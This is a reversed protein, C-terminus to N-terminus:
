KRERTGGGRRGCLLAPALLCDGHRPRQFLLVAVKGWLPNHDQGVFLLFRRIRRPAGPLPMTGFCCHFRWKRAWSEGTLPERAMVRRLADVRGMERTHTNPTKKKTPTQGAERSACSHTCYQNMFNIWCFVLSSVLCHFLVSMYLFFFRFCPPREVLKVPFIFIAFSLSFFFLRESEIFVRWRGM